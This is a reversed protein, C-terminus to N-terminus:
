ASKRTGGGSMSLVRLRRVSTITIKKGARRILGGDALDHLFRSLSEPTLNLESAIVGKPVPLDIEVSGDAAESPCLGLLYSVVRQSGSHLSHTELKGLLSMVRTAVRAALRRCFAIDHDALHRVADSTICLLRADCLAEATLERSTDLLIAAEGFTEAPGVVTVVKEQGEPSQLALKLHGDIVAFLWKASDGKQFLIEGRAVRRIRTRGSLYKLQVLPLQAFLPIRELLLMMEAHAEGGLTNVPLDM